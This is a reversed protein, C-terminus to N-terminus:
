KRGEPQLLVIDIIDRLCTDKRLLQARSLKGVRRGTAANTADSASGTHGIVACVLFGSEVSRLAALAPSNSNRMFQAKHWPRLARPPPRPGSRVLACLRWPSESLSRNRFM